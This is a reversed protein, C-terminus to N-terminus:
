KHDVPAVVWDIVTEFAPEYETFTVLAEPHEALEKAVITDTLM